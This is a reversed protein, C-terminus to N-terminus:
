PHFTVQNPLDNVSIAVLCFCPAIILQAEQLVV